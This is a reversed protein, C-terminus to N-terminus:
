ARGLDRDGLGDMALHEDATAVADGVFVRELAFEVHDAFLNRRLNVRRGAPQPVIEVDHRQRAAGDDVLAHEQGILKAGIIAVQVMRPEFRRQREDMLAEGGVGEGGPWQSMGIPHNAVVPLDVGNAAVDVPHGGALGAHRRFKKAVINRLQPRDGVLPLRVGGTEVVRELEQEAAAVREGVCRHHQDGLGPRTVREHVLVPAREVLVVGRDHLWPVPRGRHGEGVSQLDTGREVAVSQAGRAVHDGGIVLHDHRRLGPHQRDVFAADHLFPAQLRALHQQDVEVVLADDGVVFDLSGQGAGVGVRRPQRTGLDDQFLQRRDRRGIPSLINRQEVPM